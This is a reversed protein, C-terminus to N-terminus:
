PVSSLVFSGFDASARTHTQDGDSLIAIAILRPVSAAPDGKEFHKRFEADLDLSENVWTSLPGGSHVIITEGAIIPNNWRDCIAGLQGVTSWAYKLGYTRLGRRWLVYVSAASDRRASECEDGGVPLVLARWRWRLLHHELAHEAPVEFRM